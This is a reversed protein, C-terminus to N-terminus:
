YLGDELGAAYRILHRLQEQEHDSLDLTSVGGIQEFHTVLGDIVRGLLRKDNFIPHLVLKRVQILWKELPRDLNMRGTVKLRELKELHEEAPLYRNGAMLQDSWTQAYILAKYLDEYFEKPLDKGAKDSYFSNQNKTLDLHDCEHLIERIVQSSFERYFGREAGMLRSEMAFGMLEESTQNIAIFMTQLPTQRDIAKRARLLEDSDISAQGDTMLIINAAAMPEGSRKEADAILAMAQMLAKQIDTGGGTNKFISSSKNLLELAEQTNTIRIPTGVKDDFPVLVVRHRGRGSPSVDSVARATFASILGAQFRAPDGSMSGSTDFLVITIREAEEKGFGAPLRVRKRRTLVYATGNKINAEIGRGPQGLIARSLDSYRQLPMLDRGRPHASDKQWTKVEISEQRPTSNLVFDSLPTLSSLLRLENIEGAKLKKALVRTALNVGVETFDFQKKLLLRAVDPLGRVFDQVLAIDRSDTHAFSRLKRQLETLLSLLAQPVPIEGDLDLLQSYVEVARRIRFIEQYTTN